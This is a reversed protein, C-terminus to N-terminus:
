RIYSYLVVLANKFQLLLKIRCETRIFLISYMYMGANSGLDELIAEDM